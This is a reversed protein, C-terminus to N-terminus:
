PGPQRDKPDAWFLLHQRIANVGFHLTLGLAALVLLISFVQAIELNENAYLILTGLGQKAGIFEGVISGLVVLVAAINVGAFIYPLASPFRVMRFIQWESAGLARLVDVRGPESAKLGVITSILIPFFGLVAALVVKSGIGYGFWVIVLPALAIKPTSQFAVLLPQVTREVLASCALLSGTGIGCSVAVLFGLLAQLVTVGLHMPYLGSAFGQVLQGGIASPAPLVLPNFALYHSGVEWATLVLVLSLFPMWLHGASARICSGFTREFTRKRDSM